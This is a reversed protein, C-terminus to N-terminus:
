DPRGGRRPPPHLMSLGRRRRNLRPRLPLHLRRWCLRRRRILASRRRTNCRRRRRRDAPWGAVGSAWLRRGLSTPFRREILALFGLANSFFPTALSSVGARPSSPCPPLRAQVVTAKAPRDSPETSHGRPPFWRPACW